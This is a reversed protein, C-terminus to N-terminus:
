EGTPTKLASASRANTRATRVRQRAKMCAVRPRDAYNDKPLGGARGPHSNFNSLEPFSRNHGPPALLKQTFLMPRAPEGGPPM